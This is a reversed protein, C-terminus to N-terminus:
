DVHTWFDYFNFWNYPTRRCHQELSAAYRRTAEEVVLKRQARDEPWADVLLEFEARYRRDGLYAGFGMVLPRKLAAALQLPRLPFPAPQGLFDCMLHAEQGRSRDALIGVFAGRDLAESIRLGAEPKGLPIIMEALAPNLAALVRGTTVANKEYMVLRVETGPHSIGVARLMEFSGFHAGLLVCGRGQHLVDDMISENVVQVDLEAGGGALFQIRDLLVAAFTHYHRFVERLTPPRGLV